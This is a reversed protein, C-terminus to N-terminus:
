NTPEIKWSADQKYLESTNEKHVFLIYGTHRLFHKPKAISEFSSYQDAGAAKTFANHNRFQAEVPPTTAGPYSEIFVREGGGKEVALYKDTGKVKFAYVDPGAGAVTVKEITLITNTKDDKRVIRATKTDNANYGFYWLGIDKGQNVSFANIKFENAKLAVPPEEGAEMKICRVYAGTRMDESGINFTGNSHLVFAKAKDPGYSEVSSTWYEGFRGRVVSGYGDIRGIAGWDEAKMDKLKGGGVANAMAMFEEDTPVRFGSPCIDCQEIAYYSFIAGHQDNPDDNFASYYPKRFWPQPNDKNDYDLNSRTFPSKGNGAYKGSVHILESCCAQMAEFGGKPVKINTKLWTRGNLQVTEYTNGCHNVTTPESTKVENGNVNIHIGHVTNGDACDDFQVIVVTNVEGKKVYQKLDVTGPNNQRNIILDAKPDFAGTPNASNIIYIRAGDDAKSYSVTFTNLIVNNPVNVSTRFYTFDLQELCRLASKRNINVNGEADTPADSWGADGTPIKAMSYARPDGNYNNHFNIVGENGEHIQWPSVTIQAMLVTQGFLLSLM